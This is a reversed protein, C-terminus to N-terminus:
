IVLAFKEPYAIIRNINEIHNEIMFKLKLNTISTEIKNNDFIWIM